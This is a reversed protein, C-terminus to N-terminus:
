LEDVRDRSSQHRKRRWLLIAGVLVVWAFVSGVMVFLTSWDGGVSTLKMTNSNLMFQKTEWASITGDLVKSYKTRNVNFSKSMFLQFQGSARPTLVLRYSGNPDLIVVGVEGSLTLFSGPIDEVFGGSSADYGTARGQEDVISPMAMDGLGMGFYLYTEVAPHPMLPHGAPQPFIASVYVGEDYSGDSWYFRGTENDWKLNRSSEGTSTTTSCNLPVLCHLTELVVRHWEGNTDQVFGPGIDGNTGNGFFGTASSDLGVVVLEFPFYGWPLSGQRLAEIFCPCGASAPIIWSRSAINNSVQLTYNGDANSISAYFAFSQPLRVQDTFIPARCFNESLSSPDCFSPRVADASNWVVFAYTGFFMGPELEALEIVNQAWFVLDGRWNSIWFNQQISFCEVESQNAGLRSCDQIVRAGRRSQVSVEDMSINNWAALVQATINVPTATGGQFPGQGLASPSPQQTFVVVLLLSFLFTRKIESM